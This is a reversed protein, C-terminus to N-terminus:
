TLRILTSNQLEGAYVPVELLAALAKAACLKANDTVQNVLVTDFGGEQRLVAAVAEPTIRDEPSLGSLAAFREPRHASQAIPRGFGDAGVLLLNRDFGPPLVPEHALHAKMPLQRAGDAEVVVFDATERLEAFGTQPAALKGEEAPTGICIRDTRELISRLQAAELECFVPLDAPPFIHTTTCFIVRGPLTAALKRALTTKGGSGTLCIVGPHLMLQQWIEM